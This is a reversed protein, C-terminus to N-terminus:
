IHEDAKFNKANEFALDFQELEKFTYILVARKNLDMAFNVLEEIESYSFRILIANTIHMFSKAYIGRGELFNCMIRERSTSLDLDQGFFTRQHQHFHVVDKKRIYFDFNLLDTGNRSAEKVKENFAHKLDFFTFIENIDLLNKNEKFLKTFDNDDNIIDINEKNRLYKYIKKRPIRDLLDNVNHTNKIEIDM